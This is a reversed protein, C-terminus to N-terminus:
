TGPHKLRYCRKKIKKPRDTAISVPKRRSEVWQVAGLQIWRDFADTRFRNTVALPKTPITKLVDLCNPLWLWLTRPWQDRAILAESPWLAWFSPFPFVAGIERIRLICNQLMTQLLLLRIWPLLAALRKYFRKKPVNKSWKRRWFSPTPEKKIMQRASHRNSSM